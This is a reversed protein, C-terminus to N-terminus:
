LNQSETNKYVKNKDHIAFETLETSQQNENRFRSFASRIEELSIIEIYELLKWVLDCRESLFIEPM